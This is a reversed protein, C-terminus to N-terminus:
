SELYSMSWWLNVWPNLLWSDSDIEVLSRQPDLYWNQTFKIVSIMLYRHTSMLIVWPFSISLSRLIAKLVWFSMCTNEHTCEHCAKTHSYLTIHPFTSHLKHYSKSFQFLAFHWILWNIHGCSSLTYWCKNASCLTYHSSHLQHVGRASTQLASPHPPPIHPWILARVSIKLTSPTPPASLARVSMQLTSPWLLTYPTNLSARCILPCKLCYILFNRKVKLFLFFTKFTEVFKQSGFGEGDGEKFSLKVSNICLRLLIWFSTLAANRIMLTIIQSHKWYWSMGHNISQQWGTPYICVILGCSVSLSSPSSCSNSSM